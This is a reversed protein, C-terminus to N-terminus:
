ARWTCASVEARKERAEKVAQWPLEKGTIDNFCKIFKMGGRWVGRELKMYEEQGFRVWRGVNGVKTDTM